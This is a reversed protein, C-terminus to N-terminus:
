VDVHSALYALVTCNNEDAVRFEENFVASSFFM